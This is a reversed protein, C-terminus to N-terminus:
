PNGGMPANFACVKRCKGCGICRDADVEPYFFGQVDLRLVIAEVPCVDRCAGCGCCDEKKEFLVM